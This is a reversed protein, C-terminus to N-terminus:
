KKFTISFETKKNPSSVATIMGGNLEIYEKSISTGLGTGPIGSVNSARYFPEFIHPLDKESFGVGENTILIFVNDKEYSIVFGPSKKGESYKFANSVL